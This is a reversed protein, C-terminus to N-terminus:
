VRERCSARGIERREARRASWAWLAAAILGGMAGPIIRSWPRGTLVKTALAMALYVPGVRAAQRQAKPTMGGWMHFLWGTLFAPVFVAGAFEMPFHARLVIRGTLVVMGGMFFVTTVAGAPRGRLYLIGEDGAAGPRTREAVLYAIWYALPGFMVALSAASTGESVSFGRMLLAAAAAGLPAAAIAIVSRGDWRSLRGHTVAHLAAAAVWLAAFDWWRSLPQSQAILRYGLAAAYASVALPAGFLASERSLRETREDTIAPDRPALVIRRVREIV